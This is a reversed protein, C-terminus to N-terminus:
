KKHGGIRSIMQNLGEEISTKPTWAFAKHNTTDAYIEDVENERMKQSGFVLESKSGTLKRALLALERISIGSGLGVDLDIPKNDPNLLYKVASCVSLAADDVYIFDRKQSGHTLNVIAGQRLSTILRPIFKKPSDGYGYLHYFILRTARLNRRNRLDQLLNKAVLKTTIYDQHSGYSIFEKNTYFTDAHIYPLSKDLCIMMADYALQINTKVLSCYDYDFDYKVACNIILDVGLDNILETMELVNNISYYNVNNPLFKCSLRTGVCIVDFNDKSLAEAVKLGLFGSGGIVLIKKM